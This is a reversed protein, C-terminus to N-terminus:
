VLNRLWVCPDRNRTLILLVAFFFFGVLLDGQDSPLESVLKTVPSVLRYGILTSLPRSKIAEKALYVLALCIVRRLARGTDEDSLLLQQNEIVDSCLIALATSARQTATFGQKDSDSQAVAIDLAAQVTSAIGMDLHTPWLAQLSMLPRLSECILASYHGFFLSSQPEPGAKSVIANKIITLLGTAHRVAQEFDKLVYSCRKPTVDPFSDLFPKPPLQIEVVSNLTGSDTAELRKIIATYWTLFIFLLVCV